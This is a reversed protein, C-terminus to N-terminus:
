CLGISNAFFGTPCGRLDDPIFNHNDEESMSSRPIVGKERVVSLLPLDPRNRLSIATTLSGLSRIGWHEPVAGLWPVGSDKYAPYPKLDQIM